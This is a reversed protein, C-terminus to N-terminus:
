NTVIINSVGNKNYLVNFKILVLSPNNYINPYIQEEYYKINFISYITLGKSKNGSNIKPINPKNSSKITKLM